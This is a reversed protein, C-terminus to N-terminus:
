PHSKLDRKGKLLWDFMWSPLVRTFRVALAMPLPFSYIPVKKCIAHYIKLAGKPTSLLFPMKFKNRSTIASEIFGPHILSCTIGFPKLDQRVSETLASLAAKSACYAGSEPMGRYAALSSISVLQGSQKAMMSPIVTDFLHVAGM